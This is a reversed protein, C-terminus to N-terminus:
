YSKEPHTIPGVYIVRGSLVCRDCSVSKWLGPLIRVRLGLLSCGCICVKSRAAVPIPVTRYITLKVHICVSCFTCGAYLYRKIHNWNCVNSRLLGDMTCSSLKHYKMINRCAPFTHQLDFCYTHTYKKIRIGHV